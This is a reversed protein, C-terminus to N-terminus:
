VCVPIILNQRQGKGGPQFFVDRYNMAIGKWVLANSQDTSFYSNLEDIKVTKFLLQTSVYVTSAEHQIIEM